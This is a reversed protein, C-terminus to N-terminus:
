KEQKNPDFTSGYAKTIDTATEEIKSPFWLSINKFQENRRVIMLITASTAILASGFGVTLAGVAGILQYLSVITTGWIFFFTLLASIILSMWAKIWKEVKHSKWLGLVLNGIADWPM